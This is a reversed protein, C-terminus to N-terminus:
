SLEHDLERMLWAGEGRETAFKLGPGNVELRDTAAADAFVTVYDQLRCIVGCCAFHQLRASVFENLTVGDECLNVVLRAAHEGYKLSERVSPHVDIAV